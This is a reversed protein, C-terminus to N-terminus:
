VVACPTFVWPTQPWLGLQTWSCHLGASPQLTNRDAHIYPQWSASRLLLLCTSIEGFQRYMNGSKATVKEDGQITESYLILISVTIHIFRERKTTEQKTIIDSIV